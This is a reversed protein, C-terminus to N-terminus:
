YSLLTSFDSTELHFCSIEDRFIQYLVLSPCLFSNFSNVFHCVKEFLFPVGWKIFILLAVICIFCWMLAKSWWKIARKRTEVPSQLIYPETIRPEDNVVLRVYESDDKVQSGSNSHKRELDEASDPM